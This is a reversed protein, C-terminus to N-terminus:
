TKRIFRRYALFGLIAVLLLALVSIIADEAPKSLSGCSPSSEPTTSTIPPKTPPPKPPPTTPIKTTPKPPKSSQPTPIKTTPSIPGETTDEKKCVVYAFKKDECQQPTVKQATCEKFTNVNEASQCNMSAFEKNNRKKGKVEAHVLTKDHNKCVVEAEKKTFGKRCIGTWKKLNKTQVQVFGEEKTSNVKNKPKELKLDTIKPIGDRCSITAFQKDECQTQSTVVMCEKIGIVNKLNSCVMDTFKMTSNLERPQNLLTAQLYGEHKCVLEALQKNFDKRCIYRWQKPLDDAKVQVFGVHTNNKTQDMPELRVDIINRKKEKCVVVALKKNKCDKKQAKCQQLLKPSAPCNIDVITTDNRQKAMTKVYAFNRQKKCIFKGILEAEKKSLSTKCVGSWEKLNQTKVEVFGKKIGNKEQDKTKVLQM